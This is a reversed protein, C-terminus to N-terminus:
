QIRVVFTQSSVSEGGPLSAVVQWFVRSGPALSSLLDVPVRFEAATVDSAATLVRLDDTTVRVQYRSGDPGPTWRLVFADRPLPADTPIPSEVLYRSQTRFSDPAPARPIQYIGIAVGAVLVAALGVWTRSWSRPQVTVVAPLGESQIEQLERAVRWAEACAPDAAVREVIERREEAPLEGSVARWVRDLDEDSCRSSSTAALGRFAERLRDDADYPATVTSTRQEVFV